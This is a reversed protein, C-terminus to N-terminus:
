LRPIISIFRKSKWRRLDLLDKKIYKNISLILLCYTIIHKEGYSVFVFLAGIKILLQLQTSRPLGVGACNLIDKELNWFQHVLEHSLFIKSTSQKPQQDSLSDYGRYGVYM